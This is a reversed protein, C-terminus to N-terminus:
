VAAKKCFAFFKRLRATFKNFIYFKTKDAQKKALFKISYALAFSLKACQLLTPTDGLPLAVSESETM